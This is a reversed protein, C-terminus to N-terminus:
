SEEFSALRSPRMIYVLLGSEPWHSGPKIILLACVILGVVLHNEPGKNEPIDHALKEVGGAYVGFVHGVDLLVSM